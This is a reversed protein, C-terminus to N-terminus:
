FKLKEGYKNLLEICKDVLITYSLEGDLYRRVLENYEDIDLMIEKNKEEIEKRLNNNYEVAEKDIENKIYYDPLFQLLVSGILSVYISGVTIEVPIAHGSDFIATELWMTTSLITIVKVIHKLTNPKKVPKYEQRFGGFDSDSYPYYDITKPLLLVTINLSDGIREQINQPISIFNDKKISIKVPELTQFYSFEANTKGMPAGNIYVDASVNSKIFIKANKLPIRYSFKSGLAKVQVESGDLITKRSIFTLEYVNTIVKAAAELAKSATESSSLDLKLGGANRIFEDFWDDIFADDALMAIFGTNTMSRLENVVKDYLNKNLSDDVKDKSEFLPEDTMLVVLNYNLANRDLKRNKIFRLAIDVGELHAENGGLDQAIIHDIVNKIDDSNILESNRYNIVKTKGKDGYIVFVFQAELGKQLLVESFKDIQKLVNSTNDDMSGSTDIVFLVTIRNWSRTEHLKLNASLIKGDETVYIEGEHILETSGIIFNVKPFGSTDVRELFVQSFATLALFLMLFFVGWFRM